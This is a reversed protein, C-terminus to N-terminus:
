DNSLGGNEEAEAKLKKIVSQKVMRGNFYVYEDDNVSADPEFSKVSEIFEARAQAPDQKKTKDSKTEAKRKLADKDTIMTYMQKYVASHIIFSPISPIFLAILIVTVVVVAVPSGYCAILFTTCVVTLFFLGFLAIFNKKIEGYSMLFSNKYIYRMPIDFTVTMAPIYFFMFSFFLIIIITIIFPGMFIANQSILKLYLTFSVYSFVIVIFCILGHVLFRLFNDRVGSFYNKFVPTKEEGSAIKITVKVVGAYFPFVPIITCLLLLTYETQALSFLSGIFWFLSFFAALPVAFLLNTLMLRPLNRFLNTFVVAIPLTEKQSQSAM